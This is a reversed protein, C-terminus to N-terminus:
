FLPRQEYTREMSRRLIIELAEVVHGMSRQTQPPVIQGLKTDGLADDERQGLEAIMADRWDQLHHFEIGGLTELFAVNPLRDACKTLSQCRKKFVEDPRQWFRWISWVPKLVLVAIKVVFRRDVAIEGLEHCWKSVAAIENVLNRSWFLELDFTILHNAFDRGTLLSAFRDKDKVTQGEEKPTKEQTKTLDKCAMLLNSLADGERSCAKHITTFKLKGVVLKTSNIRQKLIDHRSDVDGCWVLVFPRNEISEVHTKFMQMQVVRDVEQHCTTPWPKSRLGTAAVSVRGTQYAKWVDDLHEKNKPFENKALGVLEELKNHKEALDVVQEWIGELTIGSIVLDAKRLEIDSMVRRYEESWLESFQKRLTSRPNM